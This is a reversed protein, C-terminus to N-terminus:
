SFYILESLGVKALSQEFSNLSKFSIVDVPLSNRPATVRSSFFHLSTNVRQTNRLRYIHGRLPPVNYINFFQNPEVDNLAFLIKYTSTLDARLRRLEPRDLGFALLRNRYDLDHLGKLRKTFRKQVYKLKWFTQFLKLNEKSVFFFVKFNM